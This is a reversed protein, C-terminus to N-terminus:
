NIELPPIRAGRIANYHRTGPLVMLTAEYGQDQYPGVEPEPKSEFRDGFTYLQECRWAYTKIEEIAEQKTMEDGGYNKLLLLRVMM